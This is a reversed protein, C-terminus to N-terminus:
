TVPEILDALGAAQAVTISRRPARHSPRDGFSVGAAELVADMMEWCPFGQCPGMGCSTQHKIEEVHIVGEAVLDLVEAATVDMCPCVYAHLARGRHYRVPEDPEAAFGTLPTESGAEVRLRRDGSAALQFPLSPDTRWPGAHVVSACPVVQGVDIGRVATRGLIATARHVDHESVINVGSRRLAGAIVARRDTGIVVTRGLLGPDAAAISLAAVPSMVGPLSGGPVLPPLSRKGIALVIADCDVAVACGENHPVCLALKGERYLGGAEHGLLMFVAPDIPEPAQGMATATRAPSAGRSVVITRKGARAARNAAAIGAPGGGIVLVECAM